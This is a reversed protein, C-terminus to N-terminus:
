IPLIDITYEKKLEDYNLIGLITDSGNRKIKYKM